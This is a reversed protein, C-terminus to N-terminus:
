YFIVKERLVWGSKGGPSEAYAWVDAESRIRAPQGETFFVTVAGQIEPVRYAACARLVVERSLKGMGGALGFIGLGTIGTVIGLIGGLAWPSLAKGRRSRFFRILPVLPLFVSGGLVLAMFFRRPRRKEDGTFDIGLSREAARRLPALAYGSSLDREGRRLEALAEARQGGEWLARAKAVTRDYGPRFLVFPKPGTEPFAAPAAPVEEPTEAAAAPEGTSVAEAPIPAPAVRMDLPPVNLAAGEYHLHQGGLSLLPGELPIVRLRLLLGEEREDRSVPLKEMVAHEPM